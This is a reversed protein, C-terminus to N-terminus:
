RNSINEIMLSLKILEMMRFATFVSELPSLIAPFVSPLSNYFGLFSIILFQLRIDFSYIAIWKDFESYIEENAFPVSVWRGRGQAEWPGSM